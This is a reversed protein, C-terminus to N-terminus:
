QPVGTDIVVLDNDATVIKKSGDATKTEVEFVRGLYAKTFIDAGIKVKSQDPTTGSGLLEVKDNLKIGANAKLLIRSPPAVVQVKTFGDGAVTDARAQLVGGVLNPIDAVTVPIILRGAIDTSYIFGKTVSVVATITTVGYVAGSGGTPVPDAMTPIVLYGAGPNTIAVTLIGGNGDVTAIEIVAQIGGAPPATVTLKEGVVYGTGVTGPNAATAVGGVNLDAHTTASRNPYPLDGIVRPNKNPM